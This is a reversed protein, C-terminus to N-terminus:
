CRPLAPREAEELAVQITRANVVPTIGVTDSEPWVERISVGLHSLLRHLNELNCRYRGVLLNSISGLPIGTGKALEAVTICKQLRHRTIQDLVFRNVRDAKM